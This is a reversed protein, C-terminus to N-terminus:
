RNTSNLLCFKTLQLYAVFVFTADICRMTFLRGNKWEFVPQVAAELCCYSFPSLVVKTVPVGLWGCEESTDYNYYKGYKIECRTIRGYTEFVEEIDRTRANKSLKGIFLHGGESKRSM